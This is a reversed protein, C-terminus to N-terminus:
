SRRARRVCVTTAAEFCETDYSAFREQSKLHGVCYKLDTRDVPEGIEELRDALAETRRVADRKSMSADDGRGAVSGCDDCVTRAPYVALEGYADRDADVYDPIEDHADKDNGLSGWLVRRHENKIRRFCNSCVAPDEFVYRRFIRDPENRGHVDNLRYTTTSM